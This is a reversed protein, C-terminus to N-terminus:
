VAFVKIISGDKTREDLLQEDSLLSAFVAGHENLDAVQLGTYDPFKQGRKSANSFQIEITSYADETRSIISGHLNWVM